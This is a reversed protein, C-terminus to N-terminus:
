PTFRYPFPRLRFSCTNIVQVQLGKDGDSTVVDAADAIPTGWDFSVDVSHMAIVFTTDQNLYTHCMQSVVSCMMSSCMILTHIVAVVLYSSSKLGHPVWKWVCMSAAAMHIDCPNVVLHSVLYTRLFRDGHYSWCNIFYSMAYLLANSPRQTYWWHTAHTCTCDRTNM